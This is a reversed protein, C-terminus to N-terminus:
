AKTLTMSVTGTFTATAGAPIQSAPFGQFTMTFDMKAQLDSKLLVGAAPDLWATLDIASTGKYAIRPDSGAPLGVQSLSRGSAEVIRQIDLTMQLPVTITSQVVASRVGNLSEYRLLRNRSAYHLTGSGLPFAQDFSKTWTDGPKVKGDPLIPLFQSAGAISNGAGGSTALGIDGGSVISGDPAVKMTTSSTPTPPLVQGNLTGSTNTTGVQISAVGHTDVDTVHMTVDTVFKFSIPRPQGQSSFAGDTSMTAHYSYTRGKSLTLALASGRSQLFLFGVTGVVLVLVTAVAVGIRPGGPVRPEERPADHEAM